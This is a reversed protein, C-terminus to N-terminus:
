PTLEERLRARARALQRRVTGDSVGLREATTAVDLDLWYTHSLVARQQPSLTRIVTHFSDDSDPEGPRPIARHFSLERRRRRSNTSWRRKAQNSVVRMLYPLPDVMPWRASSRCRLMSEGLLDEGDNTGALFIAYALLARSHEVYADSWTSTAATREAAAHSAM